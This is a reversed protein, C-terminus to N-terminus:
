VHHFRQKNCTPLYAHSHKLSAPGASDSRPLIAWCGDEIYQIRNCSFKQNLATFNAASGKSPKLKEVCIPALVSIFAVSTQEDAQQIATADFIWGGWAFDSVVALFIGSFIGQLILALSEGGLHALRVM